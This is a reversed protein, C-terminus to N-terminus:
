VSTLATDTYNPLHRYLAYSRLGFSKWFAELLCSDTSFHIFTLQQQKEKCAVTVLQSVTILIPRKTCKDISFVAGPLASSCGNM